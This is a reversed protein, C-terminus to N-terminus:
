EDLGVSTSRSARAWFQLLISGLAIVWVPPAGHASPPHSPVARAWAADGPEKFYQKFYQAKM